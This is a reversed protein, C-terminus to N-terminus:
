CPEDVAPDRSTSRCLLDTREWFLAALLRNEYDAFLHRAVPCIIPDGRSDQAPQRRGDNAEPAARTGSIYCCFHSGTASCPKTAQGQRSSPFAKVFPAWPRPKNHLPFLVPHVALAIRRGLNGAGFCVIPPSSHIMPKLIGAAKRASQISKESSSYCLLILCTKLRHDPFQM